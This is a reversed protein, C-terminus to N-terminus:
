RPKAGDPGDTRAPLVSRDVPREAILHIVPWVQSANADSRGLTTGPKLSLTGGHPIPGWM